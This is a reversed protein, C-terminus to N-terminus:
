LIGKVASQLMRLASPLLPLFVSALKVTYPAVLSMTMGDMIWPGVPFRAIFYFIIGMVMAGELLGFVLGLFRDLSHIFPLRTFLGLVKELLWFILGILRTIIIFSIVFVMVRSVNPAWGTTSIVWNALPEYYRSALYFGIVSGVLSAVAHVLGFWLGFLGFGLIIVLLIIDFLSM